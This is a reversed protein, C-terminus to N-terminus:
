DIFFSNTIPIPTTPVAGFIQKLRGDSDPPGEFFWLDAIEEADLWPEVHAFYCGALELRPRLTTMFETVSTPYQAQIKDSPNDCTRRIGERVQAWGNNWTGTPKVVIDWDCAIIGEKRIGAV